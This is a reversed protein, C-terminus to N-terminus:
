SPIMVLIPGPRARHRAMCERGANSANAALTPAAQEAQEGAAAGTAALSWGITPPVTDASSGATTKIRPALGPAGIAVRHVPSTTDGCTTSVAACQTDGARTPSPTM